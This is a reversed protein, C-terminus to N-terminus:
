LPLEVYFTSGRNLGDSEVWIKGGHAEIIQRTIFLGLGLGSVENFNVEREFREFIRDQADLAIGIGRDKFSLLIRNSKTQVQIFVPQKNGYKITNTLINVIVQEMRMKDWHGIIDEPCELSVPTEANKLTQEMRGLIEAILQHLVIEEKKITLKGARIRSIDLMDDVLRTIRETQKDTLDILADLREMSYALPDKQERRKKALQVQLRLSTIPTKLEHSAISLFEDRAKLAQEARVRLENNREQVEKQEQIDTNTGVWLIIAGRSDRLPYARGLHWRYQGDKRRLRYEIEYANGSRIAETWTEVTKEYDEPHHIPTNKWATGETEGRKVGFYDYHRQNYYTINGKKDSIFVMQPMAETFTRFRAESEKLDQTAKVQKTIDRITIFGLIIDGASDLIPSGNYSGYFEFNSEARKVFLIQDKFKEKRFVRAVPWEDFTIERENEDFAIWTASLQESQIKGDFTEEFGHIRLSAPNQYILNVNKDFLMFGESMNKMVSIFREESQQFQQQFDRGIQEQVGLRKKAQFFSFALLSCIVLLLTIIFISFFLPARWM